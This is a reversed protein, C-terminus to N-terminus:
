TILLFNLIMVRIQFIVFTNSSLDKEKYYYKLKQIKQYSDFM